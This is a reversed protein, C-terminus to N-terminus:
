IKRVLNSIIVPLWITNLTKVCAIKNVNCLVPYLRLSRHTVKSVVGVGGWGFLINLMALYLVYIVNCFLVFVFM